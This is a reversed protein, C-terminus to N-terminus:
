GATVGPIRGGGVRGSDQQERRISQPGRWGPSVPCCSSINKTTLVLLTAVSMECTTSGAISCLIAGVGLLSEVAGLVEQDMDTLCGAQSLRTKHMQGMM